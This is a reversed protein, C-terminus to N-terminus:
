ILELFQVNLSRQKGNKTKVRVITHNDINEISTIVAAKVPNRKIYYGNNMYFDNTKVKDGINM